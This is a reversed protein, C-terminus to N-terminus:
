PLVITAPSYFFEMQQTISRYDDSRRVMLVGRKEFNARRTDPEIKNVM